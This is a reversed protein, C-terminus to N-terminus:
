QVAQLRKASKAMEVFAARYGHPDEGKASEAIEIVADWTASGKHQSGTLLMGFEAVAVAWQFDQDADGFGFLEVDHVRGVEM